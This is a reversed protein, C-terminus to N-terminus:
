GQAKSLARAVKARKAACFRRENESRLDEVVTLFKGVFAKMENLESATCYDEGEVLSKMQNIFTPLLTRELELLHAPINRCDFRVYRRDNYYGCRNRMAVVHEQITCIMSSIAADKPKHLRLNIHVLAKVYKGEINLQLYDIFEFVYSAGVLVLLFVIIAAIVGLLIGFLTGDFVFLRLLELVLKAVLATALMAAFSIVTTVFTSLTGRV